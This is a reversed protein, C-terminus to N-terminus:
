KDSGRKEGNRYNFPWVRDESDYSPIVVSDNSWLALYSVCEGNNIDVLNAM